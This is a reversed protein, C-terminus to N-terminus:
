GFVRDYILFEFTLLINIFYECGHFECECFSIWPINIVELKKM